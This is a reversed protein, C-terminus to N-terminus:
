TVLANTVAVPSLNITSAFDLVALGRKDMMITLPNQFSQRVWEGSNAVMGQCHHMIAQRIASRKPMGSLIALTRERSHPPSSESSLM